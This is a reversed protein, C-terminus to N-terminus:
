FVRIKILGQLVVLSIKPEAILMENSRAPVYIILKRPYKPNAVSGAGKAILLARQSSKTINLQNKSTEIKMVPINIKERDDCIMEIVHMNKHNPPPNSTINSAQENHIVIAKDDIRNEIAREFDM